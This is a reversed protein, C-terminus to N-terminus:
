EAEVFMNGTEKDIIVSFDLSGENKSNTFYIHKGKYYAIYTSATEKEGALCVHSEIHWYTIIIHSEILFEALVRPTLISFSTDRYTGIHLRGQIKRTVDARKLDSFVSAEVAVRRLKESRGILVMGSVTYKGLAPLPKFDSGELNEAKINKAAEEEAYGATFGHWPSAARSIEYIKLCGNKMLATVTYGTTMLLFIVSLFSVVTLSFNKGRALNSGQRSVHFTNFLM